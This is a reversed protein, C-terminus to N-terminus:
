YAACLTIAMKIVAVFFGNRPTYGFVKYIPFKPPMHKMGGETFILKVLMLYPRRVAQFCVVLEIHKIGAYLM